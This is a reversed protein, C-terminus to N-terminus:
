TLGSIWSFPRLLRVRQFEPTGSFAGKRDGFGQLDPLNSGHSQLRREDSSNAGILPSKLLHLKEHTEIEVDQQSKM